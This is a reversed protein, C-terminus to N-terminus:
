VKGHVFDPRRSKILIILCQKHSQVESSSVYRTHHSRFLRAGLSIASLSRAKEYPAPGFILNGESPMVYITGDGIWAAFVVALPTSM